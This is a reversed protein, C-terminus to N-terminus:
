TPVTAPGADLSGQADVEGRGRKFHESKAARRQGKEIQELHKKMAKARESQIMELCFQIGLESAFKIEKMRDQKYFAIPYRYSLWIYVCAMKHLLELAELRRSAERTTLTSRENKMEKGELTPAQQKGLHEERAESVDELVLMIGSKEFVAEGDVKLGAAFPVLMDKFMPIAEPIKWPVPTQTLTARTAISLNPCADDIVAAADLLKQYESLVFPEECTALDLLLQYIQGLGTNPPLCRHIKSLAASDAAIVAAQLSPVVSKLAEDVIRHDSHVLTTAIGISDPGHMGYRGARGAIQKIESLPVVAEKYGDWKKVTSFIMRKIKSTKDFTLVLENLM